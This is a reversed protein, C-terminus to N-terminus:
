RVLFWWVLSSLIMLILYFAALPIASSVIVFGMFFATLSTTLINILNMIASGSGALHRFLGISKGMSAPYILGCAIFMLFSLWFVLAINKSEFFSLGLGALAVATFLPVCTLFVKEPTIYKTIFRCALTGLMFSLGLLLALRGFYIPTHGLVNQILFPGLTSFVILCSYTLGMLTVMGMFTRHSVITMFNNKIKAVNFPQRNLHTEPIIWLICGLGMLGFAAFFYFCAKWGFYYQLYGGIVPGIIPGIGWTTSILIAMRLIREPPLVDAFIARGIVAFCGLSFGQLLRSLLLIGPHPVLVPLLSVIFFLIFGSILLKRRGWADSLFGLIFNGLAYGLLYITILNKSLTESVQLDKAIAPLSPAILDVGMGVLPYLALITTIIGNVRTSSLNLDTEPRM